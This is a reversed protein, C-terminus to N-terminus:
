KEDKLQQRTHNYYQKTSNDINNGGSTKYEVIPIDTNYDALYLDSNSNPIYSNKIDADSELHRDINKLSSDVDIKSAYGYFNNKSEDGPIFTDNNPSNIKINEPTPIPVPLTTRTTISRFPLPMQITQSAYNRAYIRRNLDETRAFQTFYTKYNGLM